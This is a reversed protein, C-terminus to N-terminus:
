AQGRGLVGGGRGCAPAGGGGAAEMGGRGRKLNQRM